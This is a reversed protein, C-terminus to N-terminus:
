IITVVTDTLVTVVIVVIAAMPNVATKLMPAPISKSINSVVLCSTADPLPKAERRPRKVVM